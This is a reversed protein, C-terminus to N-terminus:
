NTLLRTRNNVLYRGLNSSSHDWSNTLKASGDLLLISQPHNFSNQNLDITVNYMKAFTAIDEIRGTVGVIDASFGSLYRQLVDPTDNKPQTTVFVVGVDYPNARVAVVIKALTPACINGCTTFGFFVFHPKGRMDDLSFAEGNHNILSLESDPQLTLASVLTYLAIGLVCTAIITNLLRLM